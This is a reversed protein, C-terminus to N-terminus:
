KNLLAICRDIERVLENIKLKADRKGEGDKSSLAQAIQTNSLKDNLGANTTELVKLQKVLNAIESDKQQLDLKLELILDSLQRIKHEISKVQTNVTRLRQLYHPVFTCKYLIKALSIIIPPLSKKM